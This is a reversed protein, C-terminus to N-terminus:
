REPGDLLVEVRVREDVRAANVFPRAGCARVLAHEDERARARGANLAVGRRYPAAIDNGTPFIEVILDGGAHARAIRAQRIPREIDAAERVLAAVVRLPRRRFIERLPALEVQAPELETRECGDETRVALIRRAFDVVERRCAGLDILAEHPVVT